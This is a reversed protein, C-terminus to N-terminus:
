CLERRNDIGRRRFKWVNKLIAQKRGLGAQLGGGVAIWIHILSLFDPRHYRLRLHGRVEAQRKYVDLHTYSVAKLLSQLQTVLDDHGHVLDILGIGTDMLDHVLDQLQQQLQVGGILLEIGGRDEAGATLAGSGVAGIFHAGVQGGQKFGDDVIDGGGAAIIGGGQLQQNGGDVVIFIYAPDGHTTHLPASDLDVLFDGDAVIVIGLDLLPALHNGQISDRICM